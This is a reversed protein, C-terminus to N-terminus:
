PRVKADRLNKEDSSKLMQNELFLQLPMEVVYGPVGNGLRSCGKRVPQRTAFDADPCAFVTAHFDWTQVYRENQNYDDDQLKRENRKYHLTNFLSYVLTCRFDIEIVTQMM